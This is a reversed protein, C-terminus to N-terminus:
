ILQQRQAAAHDAGHGCVTRPACYCGPRGYTSELGNRLRSSVHNRYLTVYPDLERCVESPAYPQVNLLFTVLTVAVCVRDGNPWKKPM